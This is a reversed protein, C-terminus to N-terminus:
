VKFIDEEDTSKSKSSEKEVGSEIKIEDDINENKEDEDDDLSISMDEQATVPKVKFEKKESMGTPIQFQHNWRYVEKKDKKIIGGLIVDSGQMYKVDKPHLFVRIIKRGVTTDDSIDYYGYESGDDREKVDSEMITVRALKVDTDFESENMDIDSLTIYPSQPKIESNFFEGFDKMKYDVGVFGTNNSAIITGWSKDTTMFSAKYVKGIELNEMNKAADRWLTGSAYQIKGFKDSDESKVIEQILGTIEGVYTKEGKVNIERARPYCIPMILFEKGTTTMEKGLAAYAFRIKFEEKEMARINENTEMIEKLRKVLSKVPIKHAESLANLGSQIDKSITTTM